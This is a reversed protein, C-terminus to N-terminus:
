LSLSLARGVVYTININRCMPSRFRFFLESVEFNMQLSGNVIIMGFAEYARLHGFHGIEKKRGYGSFYPQLFLTNGSELTINIWQRELARVIGCEQGNKETFSLAGAFLIWSRCIFSCRFRALIVNYQVHKSFINHASEPFPCYQIIKLIWKWRSKSDLFVPVVTITVTSPTSILHIQANRANSLTHPM